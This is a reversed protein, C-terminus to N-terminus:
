GYIVARRAMPDRDAWSDQRCLPRTWGPAHRPHDRRGDAPGGPVATRQETTRVRGLPGTNCGPIAASRHRGGTRTRVHLGGMRNPGPRPPAWSVPRKGHFGLKGHWRRISRRRSYGATMVKVRILTRASWISPTGHMRPRRIGTAVTTPILDSPM